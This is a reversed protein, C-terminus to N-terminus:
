GVEWALIGSQPDTNAGSGTLSAPHCLSVADDFRALRRARIGQLQYPPSEARATESSAHNGQSRSYRAGQQVIAEPALGRVARGASAVAHRARPAAPDAAPILRVASHVLVLRSAPDVFITQGHVGRLSFQRRVGPQLTANLGSSGIETDHADVTWTADAKAEM